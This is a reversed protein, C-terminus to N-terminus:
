GDAQYPVGQGLVDHLNEEGLPVLDGPLHRKWFAHWRNCLRMELRDHEARLAALAEQYATQSLEDQKFRQRLARRRAWFAEDHLGAQEVARLAATEDRYAAQLTEHHVDLHRGLRYLARLLDAAREDGYAGKFTRYPRVLVSLHLSTQLNVYPETIRVLLDGTSRVVQGQVSVGDVDITLAEGTPAEDREGGQEDDTQQDDTMPQM